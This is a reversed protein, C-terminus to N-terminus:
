KIYDKEIKAAKETILSFAQKSVSNKMLLPIIVEDSPEFSPAAQAM